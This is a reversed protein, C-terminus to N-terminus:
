SVERQLCGGGSTFIFLGPVPGWVEGRVRASIRREGSIRGKASIRRDGKCFNDEGRASIKTDRRSFNRGVLFEGSGGASILGAKNNCYAWWGLVRSSM